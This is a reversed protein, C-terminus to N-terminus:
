QDPAVYSPLGVASKNDEVFSGILREVYPNQWPSKPATLAERIAMDRFRQRFEGGYIRDRDQPSYRPATDWPFAEAMQQATWESTPPATVNCHIVRRRHQALVVFVFLIRVNVRPVVFFDTSALQKLHSDLFTPWTQSPPKRAREMYKAVTAQSREMGLKLLEAHM